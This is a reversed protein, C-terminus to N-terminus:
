FLKLEREYEEIREVDDYWLIKNIGKEILQEIETYLVPETGSITSYKIALENMHNVYLKNDSWIAILTDRQKGLSEIQLADEKKMNCSYIINRSEGTIVMAGNYTIVPVDLELQDTILQVGQVPRGSSITFVVGKEIAKHIREKTKPTVEKKNNILTGDIDVSLLKYQM